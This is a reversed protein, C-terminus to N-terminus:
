LPTVKFVNDNVQVIGQCDEVACRYRLTVSDQPEDTLLDDLTISGETTVTIQHTQELLLVREQLFTTQNKCIPCIVPIRRGTTSREWRLTLATIAAAESSETLTMHQHCAACRLMKQTEFVGEKPLDLFSFDSSYATGEPHYVYCGVIRLADSHCYKCRMEPELDSM